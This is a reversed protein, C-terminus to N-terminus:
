VPTTAILAARELGASRHVLGAQYGAARIMELMQARRPYRVLLLEDWARALPHAADGAVAGLPQGVFVPGAGRRALYPLTNRGYRAYAAAGSVDRDGAFAAPYAARVRHANLNLMFLPREPDLGLFSRLREPSPSIDPEPSRALAGEPQSAGRGLVRAALGALGLALRPIATQRVALVLGVERGRGLRLSEAALERSPFADISLLEAGPAAGCLVADVRGSFVRRAGCAAAGPDLARPDGPAVGGSLRVLVLPESPDGDRLADPRVAHTM